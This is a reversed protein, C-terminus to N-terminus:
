RDLKPGLQVVLLVGELGEDLGLAEIDIQRNASLSAFIVNFDIFILLFL